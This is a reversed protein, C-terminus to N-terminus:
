VAYGGDGLLQASLVQQTFKFDADRLRPDEIISPAASATPASTAAVAAAAQVAPADAASSYFLDMHFGLPLRRMNRKRKDMDVCERPVRHLLVEDAAGGPTPPHLPVLQDTHFSFRFVEKARTGRGDTGGKHHVCRLLVDGSVRENVHIVVAGDAEEYTRLLEANGGVATLSDFILERRRESPVDQHPQARLQLGPRLARSSRM